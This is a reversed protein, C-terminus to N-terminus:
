AHRVDHPDDLQRNKQRTRFRHTQYQGARGTSYEGAEFGSLHYKQQASTGPRPLDLFRLVERSVRRVKSQEESPHVTGGGEHLGDRFVVQREDPLM